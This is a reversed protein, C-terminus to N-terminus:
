RHNLLSCSLGPRTGRARDKGSTRAPPCTADRAKTQRVRRRRGNRLKFRPGRWEIENVFSHNEGLRRIVAPFSTPLPVFGYDECWSRFMKWDHKYARRPPILARPAFPANPRPGPNASPVVKWEGGDFHEILTKQKYSGNM